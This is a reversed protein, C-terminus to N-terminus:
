PDLHHEEHNQKQVDPSAPPAEAAEGDKRPATGMMGSHTKQMNAMMASMREHMTQMRPRAAPEKASEIMARMETMMSKMQEQMQDSMMPCNMASPAQQNSPTQAFGPAAAIALLLCGKLAAKM